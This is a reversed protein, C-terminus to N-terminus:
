RSYYGLPVAQPTGSVALSAHVYFGQTATSLHGLNARIPSLERLPFRVETTDHVILVDGCEQAREVTRDRHGSLVDRWTVSPNEVLRYFGELDKHKNFATPFSAEPSAAIAEMSCMLRQTRRWDGLEARGERRFETPDLWRDVQM